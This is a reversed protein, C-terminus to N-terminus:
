LLVSFLKFLKFLCHVPLPSTEVQMMWDVHIAHCLVDPIFWWLAMCFGSFVSFFCLFFMYIQMAPYRLQHKFPSMCLYAFYKCYALLLLSRYVILLDDVVIYWLAPFGVCYSSRPLLTSLCLFVFVCAVVLELVLTPMLPVLPIRPIMLADCIIVYLWMYIYMILIYIYMILFDLLACVSLQVYRTLNYFLDLTLSRM